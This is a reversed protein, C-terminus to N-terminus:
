LKVLVKSKLDFLKNKTESHLGNVGYAMKVNYLWEEQQQSEILINRWARLNELVLQIQM